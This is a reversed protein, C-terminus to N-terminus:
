CYCMICTNNDILVTNVYHMVYRLYEQTWENKCIAIQTVTTTEYCTRALNCVSVSTIRM